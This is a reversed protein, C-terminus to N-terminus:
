RAWCRRDARWVASLARAGRGSRVNPAPRRRRWAFLDFAISAWSRIVAGFPWPHARFLAFAPNGGVSDCSGCMLVPLDLTTRAGCAACAVVAPHLRRGPQLGGPRHRGDGDGLQVGSFGTGGLAPLRDPGPGAGACSGRGAPPSDRRDGRVGFDRADGDRGDALRSRITADAPELM